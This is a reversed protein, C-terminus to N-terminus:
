PGGLFKQARGLGGPEEQSGRRSAQSPIPRTSAQEGQFAIFAAM